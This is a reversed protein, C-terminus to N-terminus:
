DQLDEEALEFPENDTEDLDREHDEAGHTLKKLKKLFIILILGFGVTFITLWLFTQYEQESQREELVFTVNYDKGDGKNEEFKVKDEDKEFVLNAHFPSSETANRESLVSRLEAKREENLNFVSNLPSDSNFEEFVLEDGSLYVKSKISFNKDLNIPYDYVSVIKNDANKIEISDKDMFPIVAQKEVVMEGKFSELQS